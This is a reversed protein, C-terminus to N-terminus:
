KFDVTKLDDLIQQELVNYNAYFFQGDLFEPRYYSYINIDIRPAKFEKGVFEYFNTTHSFEPSFYIASKIVNRNKMFEIKELDLNFLITDNRVITKPYKNTIAELIIEDIRDVPYNKQNPYEHFLRNLSNEEKEDEEKQKRLNYNESFRRTYLISGLETEGNQRDSIIIIHKLIRMEEKNLWKLIREEM